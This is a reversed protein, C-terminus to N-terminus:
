GETVELVSERGARWTWGAIAAAVLGVERDNDDDFSLEREEMFQQFAWEHAESVVSIAIEYNEFDFLDCDIKQRGYSEGRRFTEAALNAAIKEIDEKGRANKTFYRFAKTAWDFVNSYITNERVDQGPNRWAINWFEIADSATSAESGSAYCVTCKVWWVLGHDKRLVKVEPENCFPCEQITM